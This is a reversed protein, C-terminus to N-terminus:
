CLFSRAYFLYHCRITEINTQYEYRFISAYENADRPITYEIVEKVSDITGIEVDGDKLIFKYNGQFLPGRKFIYHKGRM